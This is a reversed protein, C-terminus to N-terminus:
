ATRSALLITQDDLQPGFSRAGHFVREAIESLSQHRAGAVLEKVGDFGLDRDTRDFVEFLGDTILVLLDGARFHIRTSSFDWDPSFGLPVHAAAVAEVEAGGRAMRLLPPHGAILVEIEGHSGGRIAGLTVYMSGTLQGCLLRNVRGVLDPLGRRDQVGMRMASKVMGTVLGSSVGHGAVDAVYALWEGDPLVIVDVLDGGVQGSPRSFGHFRTSDIRCEVDPVLTRHIRHALKMEASIAARRKGEGSIFVVFANYGAIILVLAGFSDLELRRERSLTTFGV